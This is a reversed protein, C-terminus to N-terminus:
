AWPFRTTFVGRFCRSNTRPSMTRCRPASCFFVIGYDKCDDLMTSFPDYLGTTTLAATATFPPLTPAHQATISFRGLAGHRGVAGSSNYATSTRLACVDSRSLRPPHTSDIYM